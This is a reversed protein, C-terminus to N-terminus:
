TVEIEFLYMSQLGRIYPNRHMMASLMGKASNQTHKFIYVRM